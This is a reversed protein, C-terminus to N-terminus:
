LWGLRDLVETAVDRIPRDGENAVREDELAAKDMTSAFQLAEALHRRLTAGGDRRRLREEVAAASATIRFVTVEVDPLAQRVLDLQPHLLARAMVLHGVGAARFTSVVLALNEALVRGVTWGSRDEAPRLWALWDLDLVAHPLHKEDLLEGIEVALATKGSGLTGTLVVAQLRETSDSM